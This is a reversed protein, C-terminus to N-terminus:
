CNASLGLPPETAENGCGCPHTRCETGEPRAQSPSQPLVAHPVKAQVHSPSPRAPDLAEACHCLPAPSHSAALAGALRCPDPGVRVSEASTAPLSEPDPTSAQASAVRCRPFPCRWTRASSGPYRHFPDFPRGSRADCFRLLIRFNRLILPSIVIRWGCTAVGLRAAIWYFACVVRMNLLPAQIKAGRVKHNWQNRPPPNSGGVKPNHAWCFLRCCHIEVVQRRRSRCLTM